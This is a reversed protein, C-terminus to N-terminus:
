LSHRNSYTLQLYFNSGLLMYSSSLHIAYWSTVGLCCTLCILLFFVYTEEVFFFFCFMLLVQTFYPEYVQIPFLLILLLAGLLAAVGLQWYLLVLAVVIRFPASWMTHLSQCIQQLFWRIYLWILCHILCDFIIYYYNIYELMQEFM